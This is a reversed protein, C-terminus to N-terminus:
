SAIFPFEAWCVWVSLLTHASRVKEKPAASSQSLATVNDTSSQKTPTIVDTSSHSVKAVVEQSGAEKGPPDLVRDREQAGGSDNTLVDAGTKVESGSTPVEQATVCPETTQTPLTSLPPM